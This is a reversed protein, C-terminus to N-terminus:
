TVRGSHCLVRLLLLETGNAMGTCHTGEVRSKRLDDKEGFAHGASFPLFLNQLLASGVFHFQGAVGVCLVM